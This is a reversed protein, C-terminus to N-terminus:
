GILFVVGGQNRVQFREGTSVSGSDGTRGSYDAQADGLFELAVSEVWSGRRNPIGTRPSNQRRLSFIFYRIKRRETEAVHDRALFGLMRNMKM